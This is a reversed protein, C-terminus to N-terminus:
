YCDEQLRDAETVDAAGGRELVVYVSGSFSEWPAPSRVRGSTWRGDEDRWLVRHGYGYESLPKAQHSRRLELADHTQLGGLPAHGDWPSGPPLTLGWALALQRLVSRVKVPAQCPEYGAALAIKVLTREADRAAFPDEAPPLAAMEYFEELNM